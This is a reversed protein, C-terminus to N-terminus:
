TMSSRDRPIDLAVVTKDDRDDLIINIPVM